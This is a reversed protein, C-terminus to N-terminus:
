CFHEICAFFHKKAACWTTLILELSKFPKYKSELHLCMQVATVDGLVGPWVLASLILVLVLTVMLSLSAADSIGRRAEFLSESCFKGNAHWDKVMCCFLFCCSYSLARLLACWLPASRMWGSFVVDCCHVCWHPQTDSAMKCIDKSHRREGPQAPWQTQTISVLLCPSAAQSIEAATEKICSCRRLCSVEFWAWRQCWQTHTATWLSRTGSTASLCLLPDLPVRCRDSHINDACLFCLDVVCTM